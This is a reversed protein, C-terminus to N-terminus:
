ANGERRPEVEGARRQKRRRGRSSKGAVDSHTAPREPGHDADASLGYAQRASDLPGSTFLRGPRIGQCTTSRPQAEPRYGKLDADYVAQCGVKIHGRIEELAKVVLAATNIQKDPSLTVM